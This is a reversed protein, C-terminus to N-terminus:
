GGRRACAFSIEYDGSALWEPMDEGDAAIDNTALSKPRQIVENPM